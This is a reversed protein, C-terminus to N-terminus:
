LNELGRPGFVIFRSLVSTIANTRTTEVTPAAGAAAAAM